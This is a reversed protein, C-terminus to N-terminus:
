YIFSNHNSNDERTTAQTSSMDTVPMSIECFTHYDMQYWRTMTKTSDGPVWELFPQWFLWYTLEANRNQSNTKDNKVFSLGKHLCLWIIKTNEFVMVKALFQQATLEVNIHYLDYTNMNWMAWKKPTTHMRTLHHSYISISNVFKGLCSVLM